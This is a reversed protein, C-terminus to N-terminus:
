EDDSINYDVVRNAIEKSAARIYLSSDEAERYRNSPEVAHLMYKMNSTPHRCRRSHSDCQSSRSGVAICLVNEIYRVSEGSEVGEHSNLSRCFRFLKSTDKTIYSTERARWISMFYCSIYGVNCTRQHLNLRRSRSHQTVSMIM